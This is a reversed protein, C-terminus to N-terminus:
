DSARVTVQFTKAPDKEREFSREYALEITAVGSEVVNFLWRRTGGRGVGAAPPDFSTNELKCVPEGAAKLNWRYGTTPNEALSLEIQDLKKAAVSGENSHEDLKLM